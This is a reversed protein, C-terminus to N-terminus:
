AVREVRVGGVRDHLALGNRDMLASVLYLGALAYAAAVCAWLTSTPSGTADIGWFLGVHNIEFPLLLLVARALLAFLDFRGTVPYMRLGMARQGITAGLVLPSVTFYIVCPLSVSTLVWSHLPWKSPNQLAWNLDLVFLVGQIAALGIVLCLVDFGYGVLRSGLLVARATLGTKAEM